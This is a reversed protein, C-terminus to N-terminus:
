NKKWYLVSEIAFVNGSTNSYDEIMIMLSGVASKGKATTIPRNYLEIDADDERDDDFGKDTSGGYGNWITM